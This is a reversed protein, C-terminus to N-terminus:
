ESPNPPHPVIPICHIRLERLRAGSLESNGTLQIQFQIWQSNSFSNIDIVGSIAGVTNITTTTGALVNDSYGNIVVSEGSRLPTQLKIEANRFTFKKYFTGVPIQDTKIVSTGIGSATSSRGIQNSTTGNDSWGVIYDFGAGGLNTQDAILVQANGYGLSTSLNSVSRLVKTKLDIAWVDSMGVIPSGSNTDAEFSFLLNNRWLIADGWRFYPDNYGTLSDPITYFDSANVSNSIYIRGRGTTGGTFIFFNQNASVLRKIFLNDGVFIPTQFSLGSTLFPFVYGQSGGVMITITSNSANSGIQCLSQATDGPIIFSSANFTFTGSLTPDFTGPNTETLSGVSSGNCFYLTGNVGSIAYHQVTGTLTTQWGNTWTSGNWYDIFTNRFKFLFGKWYLIADTASAGASTAGSALLTWTGSLSTSEYVQGSADLIAFKQAPGPYSPNVGYSPFFGTTRSIPNGLIGGSTTSTTIPYGVQIVGPMGSINVQRMDQFGSFPDAGIGKEWGDFVIDVGESTPELRWAM